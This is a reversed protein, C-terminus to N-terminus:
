LKKNGGAIKAPYWKQFWVTFVGMLIPLISNVAGIYSKIGTGMLFYTWIPTLLYLVGWMLTLIWNTKMFLPNRLADEGHYGNMSYHATLPIKGFCTVTWMVGFTLYSLPLVVRVSVGSLVAMAFGSVFVASLVDYLTKKNQYFLLPVLVCAGISIFSGIDSSIGAFIWFAMWPILMINMNTEKAPVHLGGAKEATEERSGDKTKQGAGDSGSGAGMFCDDWRLLLNFDGKVKYLHKMLAEDGRIEGAAISRWVSLPTEIRTTAVVSGDTVVRSGEKGMVIQYCEDVDTYYMELVQEKGSYSEKRYLVAMERTFILADSEKEGNTKEIGWSMDAWSEFIERPYLLRNLQARTEPLIEGAMYEKGAERVYGLYEDTRRSVDPVRFLEGQGCFVTTYCDKGCIHDFLSCVGDYNGEATYFGCTSIVVTKKGSMDYRSPHSGSGTQMENEVMFPEVMPLQRDILNKLGGPVTFYYLPFSWITIDAWLLRRIVEQMDDQICCAGPTKNWCSFCGLCPHIEKQNVQIEEVELTGGAAETSEKMGALFARTLKYTNSRSGKPSGNIVLIKM